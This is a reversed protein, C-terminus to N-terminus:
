GFAAALDVEELASLAAARDVVERVPTYKTGNIVVNTIVAGLWHFFNLIEAGSVGPFFYKNGGSFGVVEHPFVPGVICVLDYEFVRKNVTVPVSQRMLGGSITEIDDESFTGINVLRDQNLWEHNFIGIDAYRTQREEATIGLMHHIMVDTMPPHTGLAILFDMKAARHHVEQYLAHFMQAMPMSRTQDPIIFLIRKGDIPEKEWAQAVFAEIDEDNLYGNESIQKLVM